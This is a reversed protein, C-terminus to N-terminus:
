TGTHRGLLMDKITDSIPEQDYSDRHEMSAEASGFLKSNKRKEMGIITLNERKM